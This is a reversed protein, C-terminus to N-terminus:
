IVRGTKTSGPVLLDIKAGVLMNDHLDTSDGQIM